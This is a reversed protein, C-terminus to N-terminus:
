VLRRKTQIPCREHRRRIMDFGYTLVQKIPLTRKGYENSFQTDSGFTGFEEVSYFPSFNLRTRLRSYIM